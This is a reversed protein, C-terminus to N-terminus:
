PAATLVFAWWTFGVAAGSVASAWVWRTRVQPPRASAVFLAGVCYTVSGTVASVWAAADTLEAAFLTFAAAVMVGLGAAAALFGAIMAERRDLGPWANPGFLWAALPSASLVIVHFSGNDGIPLVGAVAISLPLTALVVVLAALRGFGSYTAPRNCSM